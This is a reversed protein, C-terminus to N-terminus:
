IYLIHKKSIEFFGLLTLCIYKNLFLMASFIDSFKRKKIFLFSLFM